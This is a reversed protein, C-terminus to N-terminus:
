PKVSIGTSLRLLAYTHVNKLDKQEEIIFQLTAKVFATFLADLIFNFHKQWIYLSYSSAVSFSNIKGRGSKSNDISQNQQFLAQFCM